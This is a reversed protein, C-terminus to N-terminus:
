FPSDLSLEELIPFLFVHCKLSFYQRMFAMYAIKLIETFVRLSIPMTVIESLKNKVNLSIWHPLPCFYLCCLLFNFMQGRKLVNESTFCKKAM